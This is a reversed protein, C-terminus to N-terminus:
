NQFYFDYAITCILYAQDDEYVMHNCCLEGFGQEFLM